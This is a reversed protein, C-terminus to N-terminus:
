VFKYGVGRLTELHRGARGLKERLRRMHVDVTRTEIEAAIGWVSALLQNRSFVRGPNSAFHYLLQFEKATLEIPKGGAIVSYRDPDIELDKLNIVSKIAQGKQGLRRLVAHIRAVLEKLGFPKVIYDDAGMELGVVKDVEEGKATLMIIPIRTTKENKKLRRCIELGDIGPLMLDLLILSPLKNEALRLGNIGDNAKSVSFGEKKLNYEVAEVIDRDDEIILIETM